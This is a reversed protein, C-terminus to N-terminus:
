IINWLIEENKLFTIYTFRETTSLELFRANLLVELKAIHRNRLRSSIAMIRTLKFRRPGIGTFNTRRIYAYRQFRYDYKRVLNFEHCLDASLTNQIAWLTIITNSM